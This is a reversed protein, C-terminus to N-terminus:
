QQQRWKKTQHFSSRTEWSLSLVYTCHMLTHILPHAQTPKVWAAEDFVCRFATNEDFPTPYTEFKIQVCVNRVTEKQMRMIGNIRV